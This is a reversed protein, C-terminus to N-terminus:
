TSTNAIARFNRPLSCRWTATCSLPRPITSPSCPFSVSASAARLSDSSINRFNDPPCALGDSQWMQNPTAREFFRPRTLNRKKPPSSEPMLEAAHLHRRVTEPSAPLFFWRRLLQSIRKIGFTPEEKKLEIIKDRVPDALHPQGPGTKLDNLGVEGFRRYRSVWRIVTQDTVDLEETILAYPFGEELHMKVARLKFDPPFRRSTKRSFGRPTKNKRKKTVSQDEQM